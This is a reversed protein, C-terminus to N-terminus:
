RHEPTLRSRAPSAPPASVTAARRVRPTSAAPGSAPGAPAPARSVGPAYPVRRGVAGYCLEYYDDINDVFMVRATDALAGPADPTNGITVEAMAMGTFGPTRVARAGSDETVGSRDVIEFGPGVARVVYPATATPAAMNYQYLIVDFRVTDQAAPAVSDVFVCYPAAVYLEFNEPNVKRVVQVLARNTAGPATVWVDAQFFGPWLDGTIDILLDAPTNGSTLRATLWGGAYPGFTVDTTLGALPASSSVGVTYQTPSLSDGYQILSQDLVILSGTSVTYSVRVAVGSNQAAPALLPVTATYSGAALDTRSPRLSLTTPAASGSLTATLWGTVDGDYVIPGVALGDLAGAAGNVVLISQGEPIAGTARAEFAAAPRELQILAPTRVVVMVTTARDGGRATITATGPGVATVKGTADVTAVGPADTSWSITRDTVAGGTNDSLTGTLQVSQGTLLPAPTGPTVAVTGVTHLTVEAPSASEGPKLDLPGITVVDLAASGAVLTLRVLVRCSEGGPLHRPDALCAGLELALPQTVTGGAAAGALPIEREMLVGPEGTDRLYMVRVGLATVAAASAGSAGGAITAAVALRVAGTAPGTAAGDQLCGTAAVALALAAALSARAAAFPGRRGPARGPGSCTETKKMSETVTRPGSTIRRRITRMWANWM